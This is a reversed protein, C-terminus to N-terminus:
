PAKLAVAQEVIQAVRECDEDSWAQMTEFARLLRARPESPPAESSGEVAATQERLARAELMADLLSAAVQGITSALQRRRATPEYDASFSVGTLVGAVEDEHGVPIALTVQPGRVSAGDTRVAGDPELLPTGVQLEGTLVALGSLTNAVPIRTGRLTEHAGAPGETHEFVLEVGDRVLISGEDLELAHLLLRLLQRYPEAGLRDGSLARFAGVVDQM